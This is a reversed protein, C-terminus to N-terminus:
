GHFWTEPSALRREIADKIRKIPAELRNPRPRFNALVKMCPNAEFLLVNRSSDIHCDVGFFDLRLRRQMERFVPEIAPLWESAFTNHAHEEEEDAQGVARRGHLSWDTGLICQRLFIKEGVLVLRQKRYLGDPSAFDHFETLYLAHEGHNLQGIKGFADSREIRVREKGGHSGAVRVLIPYSLKADLAAARVADPSGGNVRITKPVTLGPIDALLRAVGDRTTRAVAAPHNFCPRGSQKIIASVIALAGSCLDPDAIHNLLAGPGLRVRIGAGAQLFYRNLAFRTQSLFPALNASGHLTASPHEGSGPGVHVRRADPSVRISGRDRDPIGFLVNLPIRRLRADSPMATSPTDGHLDMIELCLSLTCPGAQLLTDGSALM